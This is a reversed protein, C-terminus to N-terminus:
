LTDDKKGKDDKIDRNSVRSLIMKGCRAMDARINEINIETFPPYYPGLIHVDITINKKAGLKYLVSNIRSDSIIEPYRISVGYVPKGIHFAGTRFRTLTDPHSMIGEPFLCISGNEEVFERMKDVINVSKGREFTLIKVIKKAHQIISSQGVISSALFGTDFLYYLILLEFYTVHNSIIVKHKELKMKEMGYVKLTLNNFALVRECLHKGDNYNNLFPLKTLATVLDFFSDLFGVTTNDSMDSYYTMSLMDAFRQPHLDDDLLNFIRTISTKCIPCVTCNKNDKNNIRVYKDYCSDHYMHECPYAMVVRATKWPLGVDCFCKSNLIKNPDPDDSIMNNM